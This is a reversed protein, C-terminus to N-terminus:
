FRGLPRKLHRAAVALGATSLAALAQTFSVPEPVAAGVATGSLAASLMSDMAEMAPPHLGFQSRWEELDAANTLGDNNLDTIGGLEFNDRSVTYDAADVVGDDNVDAWARTRAVWRFDYEFFDAGGPPPTTQGRVYMWPGLISAFLSVESGDLAQGTFRFVDFPAAVPLAEGKLGKLNLVRDVDLTVAPRPDLSLNGGDIEANEFMALPLGTDYTRRLDYEGSLRYLDHVGAFGGSERLYSLRPVIRFHDFREPPDALAIGPAMFFPVAALALTVSRFSRM